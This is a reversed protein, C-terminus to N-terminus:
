EYHLKQIPFSQAQMQQQHMNAKEHSYLADYFYAATKNIKRRHKNKLKLAAKEQQLINTKLM